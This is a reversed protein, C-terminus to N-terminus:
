PAEEAAEGTSRKARRTAESLGHTQVSQYQRGLTVGDAGRSTVVVQIRTEKAKMKRPEGGGSYGHGATLDTYVPMHDSVAHKLVQRAIHLKM